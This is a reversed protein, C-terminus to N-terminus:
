VHCFELQITYYPNRVISCVGVHKGLDCRLVLERQRFANRLWKTWDFIEVYHGAVALDDKCWYANLTTIGDPGLQGLQVQRLCIDAIRHYPCMALCSLEGEYCDM